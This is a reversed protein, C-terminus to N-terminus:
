RDVRENFEEVTRNQRPGWGKYCLYDQMTRRNEAMNPVKEGDLRPTARGFWNVDRPGLHLVEFPLWIKDQNSWRNQFVGDAMGAHNYTVDYWPRSTLQPAMTHFLHFYGPFCSERSPRAREWRLGHTFGAPDDLIKRHAGYLKHENLGELRMCEPFLIDADFALVWDPLNRNLVDLGEDLALGKNFRAGSRTFADTVYIRCGIVTKVLDQTRRDEPSTVVVCEALKLMNRRLTIGLLDDFGVSVTIGRPKIM